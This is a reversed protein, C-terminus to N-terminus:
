ADSLIRDIITEGPCCAGLYREQDDPWPVSRGREWNSITQTSVQLRAALDAQTLQLRDRAERIHEAFTM